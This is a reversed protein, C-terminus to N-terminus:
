IQALSNTRGSLKLLQDLMDAWESFAITAVIMNKYEEAWIMSYHETFLRNWEYEANEAHVVMDSFEKVIAFFARHPNRFLNSLNDRLAEEVDYLNKELWLRINRATKEIDMNQNKDTSVLPPINTLEPDLCDLCSRVEYTLFGKVSFHFDCVNRFAASLIPYADEPLFTQEFEKMWVYPEGKAPLGMVKELRCGEEGYLIRAITNKVEVVLTNLSVDVNAFRQAIENRLQNCYRTYLVPADGCSLEAEVADQAPVLKAQEMDSLIQEIRDQLVACPEDRKEKQARALMRLQGALRENMKKVNKYVLPQTNVGDMIKSDMVKRASSCFSLYEQRVDDLANTLEVTFKADLDDLNGLLMNLMPILFEERVQKQDIVNIIKAMAGHWGKNKLTELCIECRERDNPTKPHGPAENLLWFLWKGLDRDSCAKQILKYTNSVSVDLYDGTPNYPLHMFVVADSKEKVAEVMKYGIGLHHDGMGITDILTIKGAQAYDFTCFVHCTDVALYKYFKRDKAEDKEGNNQAVYTQIEDPDYITEEGKHVLPAWEDYHDVYKKLYKILENETRGKEKKAEVQELLSQNIQSLDTLVISSKNTGKEPIIKNLYAQVEELMQAATKFRLHAVLNTGPCNEIISVAGTCDTESYAPIVRDDLNSIAQLFSSKGSRAGGVVSIYINERSFRNQARDCEALARAIKDRCSRTDLTHLKLVMEPNKQTVHQFKGELPNGNQDVIQKKLNDYLNLAALMDNLDKRKQEIVPVKANRKQIIDDVIDRIEM